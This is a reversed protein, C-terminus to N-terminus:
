PSVLLESSPAQQNKLNEVIFVSQAAWIGGVLLGGAALILLVCVSRRALPHRPARVRWRLRKQGPPSIAIPEEAVIRQPFILPEPPPSPRRTPIPPLNIAPLSVSPLNLIYQWDPRICERDQGILLVQQIAPLPLRSMRERLFNILFLRDIHPPLLAQLVLCQDHIAVLVTVDLPLLSHNIWAALDDASQPQAFSPLQDPSVINSSM